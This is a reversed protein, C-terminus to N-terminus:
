FRDHFMMKMVSALIIIYIALVIAHTLANPFTYSITPEQLGPTGIYTPSSIFNIRKKKTSNDEWRFSTIPRQGM